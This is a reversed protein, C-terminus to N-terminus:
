SNSKSKPIKSSNQTKYFIMKSAEHDEIHNAIVSLPVIYKAGHMKPCWPRTRVGIIWSYIYAKLSPDVSLRVECSPFRYSLKPWISYNLFAQKFWVDLMLWDFWVAVAFLYCFRESQDLKKNSFQQPNIGCFKGFKYLM